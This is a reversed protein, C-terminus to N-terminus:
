AQEARLKLIEFGILSHISRDIFGNAWKVNERSGLLSHEMVAREMMYRSMPDSKTKGLFNTVMAKFVGPACEQFIQGLKVESKAMFKNSNAKFVGRIHQEFTPNNIRWWSILTIIVAEPGTTSKAGIKKVLSCYM